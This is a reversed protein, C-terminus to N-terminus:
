KACGFVDDDGGTFSFFVDEQFLWVEPWKKCREHDFTVGRTGKIVVTGM